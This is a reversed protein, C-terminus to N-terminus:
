NAAINYVMLSTGHRVYLRKQHIVLHAWHYGEGYPVEFVGDIRFSSDEPKILGVKGKEDYFYLHDDAWIINGRQFEKSTFLTEGSEWDVCVLQRNEHGGGYLRGDILVVGGMQNDLDSNDWAKEVRSGDELLKLKVGGKGYGSVCYISGEHYLPTNPHVSWKNTHEFTWLVEGNSADMGLISNQTMAVLLKRKELNIMMPSNYASIEGNGSSKWILEGTFRDMALINTSTGGPICFLVDGEILLNETLGWKINIADYKELLNIKWLEKGTNAELCILLGFESLFYLHGMYYLPTSRTGEWSETWSAGYEKKWILNGDHDLTYIFGKGDHAGSTFIRNENVTPSAYGDGLGEYHWILPPGEEPWTTLLEKDPYIGNRNPGRWQVMDQSYLYFSLFVTFISFITKM